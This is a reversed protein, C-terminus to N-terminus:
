LIVASYLLRPLCNNVKPAQVIDNQANRDKLTEASFDSTIRM